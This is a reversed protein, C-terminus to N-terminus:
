GKIAVASEAATMAGLHQGQYWALLRPKGRFGLQATGPDLASLATLRVFAKFDSVKM